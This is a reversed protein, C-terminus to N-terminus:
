TELHPLDHLSQWDGGWKLGLAKGCAGYAHWPLHIDWSPKTDILFACDIAHGFGDEKVQHNSLHTVGDANTVIPGPTTRGKAYLAQQQERTRVGQVMIMPFGLAEM